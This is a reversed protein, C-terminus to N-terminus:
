PFTLQWQGGVKEIKAKKWIGQRMYNRQVEAAKRLLIEHPGFWKNYDFCKGMWWQDDEWHYSGFYWDKGSYDAM